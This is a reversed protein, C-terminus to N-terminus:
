RRIFVTWDKDTYISRFHSTDLNMLQTFANPTPWMITDIKYADLVARWEPRVRAITVYDEVITKPYMDYRDDMFVKQEPHAAIMWGANADTTLLRTNTGFTKSVYRFAKVSYGREDFQKEGVAQLAFVLAIAIVGVGILRGLALNEDRVNSPTAASEENADRHSCARAVIPICVVTTIALNRLAWLALMAFPVLVIVDRRGPRRGRMLVCITLAIWAGFAYGATSHFNPSM